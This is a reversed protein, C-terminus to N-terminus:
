SRMYVLGWHMAPPKGFLTTLKTLENAFARAFWEIEHQPDTAAWDLALPEQQDANLILLMPDRPQKTRKARPICCYQYFQKRGRKIHPPYATAYSINWHLMGGDILEGWGHPDAEDQPMHVVDASLWEAFPGVWVYHTWADM